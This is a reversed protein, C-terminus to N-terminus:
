FANSYKSSFIGSESLLGFCGDRFEVLFPYGYRANQKLGADKNFFSEYCDTFDQIWYHEPNVFEVISAGSKKWALGDNYLRLTLTDGDTLLYKQENYSNVCHRRKGSIMTYDVDVKKSGGTEKVDGCLLMMVPLKGSDTVICCEIGSHDYESIRLNGQPSDMASINLSCFLAGGAMYLSLPCM